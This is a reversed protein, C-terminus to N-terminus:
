LTVHVLTVHMISVTLDIYSLQPKDISGTCIRSYLRLYHRAFLQWNYGVTFRSCLGDTYARSETPFLAMSM